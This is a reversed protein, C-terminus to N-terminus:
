TNAICPFRGELHQDTRCQSHRGPSEEEMARVLAAGLWQKVSGKARILRYKDHNEPLTAWYGNGASAPHRLSASRIHRVRHATLLGFGEIFGFTNHKVPQSNETALLKEGRDHPLGIAAYSLPATLFIRPVGPRIHSPFTHSRLKKQGHAGSIGPGDM